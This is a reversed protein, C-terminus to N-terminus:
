FNSRRAMRPAALLETRKRCSAARRPRVEFQVGETEQLYKVIEFLNKAQPNGHPGLM